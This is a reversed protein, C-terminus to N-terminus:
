PAPPRSPRQQQGAHQGLRHRRGFQVVVWRFQRRQGLLFREDRARHGLPAVLEDGHAVARPLRETFESQRRDRDELPVLTFRAPGVADDAAQRVALAEAARHHAPLASTRETPMSASGCSTSGLPTSSAMLRGSSRPRARRAQGRAQMPISDQEAGLLRGVLRPKRQRVAPQAELVRVDRERDVAGTRGTRERRAIRISGAASDPGGSVASDPRQDTRLPRTSVAITSTLDPPCSRLPGPILGAPRTTTSLGAPIVLWSTTPRHRRRNPVRLTPWAPVSSGIAVPTSTTPISRAM